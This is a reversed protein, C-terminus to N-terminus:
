GKTATQFTELNKKRERLLSQYESYKRMRKQLRKMVWNFIEHDNVLIRDLNYVDKKWAKIWLPAPIEAYEPELFFFKDYICDRLYSELDFEDTRRESRPQDTKWPEEGSSVNPKKPKRSELIDELIDIADYEDMCSETLHFHPQWGSEIFLKWKGLILPLLDRQKEAIQDLDVNLPEEQIVAM